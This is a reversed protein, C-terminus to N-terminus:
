LDLALNELKKRIEDPMYYIRGIVLGLARQVKYEKDDEIEPILIGLKVLLRVGARIKPGIKFIVPTATPRGGVTRDAITYWEAAGYEKWYIVKRHPSQLLFKIAMKESATFNYNDINMDIRYVSFDNYLTGASGIGRRSAFVPTKSSKSPNVTHIEYVEVDKLSTSLVKQKVEM